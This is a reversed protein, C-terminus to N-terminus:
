FSVIIIKKFLYVSNKPVNNLEQIGLRARGMSEITINSDSSVGVLDYITKRIFIVVM